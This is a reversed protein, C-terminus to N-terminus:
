SSTTSVELMDALSTFLDPNVLPWISGLLMNLWQVSEPDQRKAAIEAADREAEWVSDDWIEKTKKQGVDQATYITGGILAAGLATVFLASILRLLPGQNWPHPELVRFWLSAIAMTVIAVASLGITYMHMHVMALEQQALEFDPPPFVKMMNQHIENGRATAEQVSDRESGSVGHTGKNRITFDDGNELHELDADTFDQITVPLHTIPDTVEREAREPKRHKMEKRKAKANSAASVQSTDKMGRYDQDTDGRKNLTTVEDHGAVNNSGQQQSNQHSQSSNAGGQWQGNQRTGSSSEDHHGPLHSEVRDKFGQFGGPGDDRQAELYDRQDQKDSRYEQVTPITHKSGLPQQYNRSGGTDDYGSM